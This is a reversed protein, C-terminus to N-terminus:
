SECYTRTFRISPNLAAPVRDQPQRGYRAGLFPRQDGCFQRLNNICDTQRAKERAHHIAPLVLGALVMIIMIVALLEVLTFGGQDSQQYVTVQTDIGERASHAARM